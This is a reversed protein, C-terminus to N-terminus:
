IQLFLNNRFLCKKEREIFENLLVPNKGTLNKFNCSIKPEPQFRPLFHLITIILAFGHNM